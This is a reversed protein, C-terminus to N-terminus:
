AATPAPRRFEDTSVYTSAFADVGTQGCIQACKMLRGPGPGWARAFHPLHREIIVALPTHRLNLRDEGIRAVLDHYSQHTAAPRGNGRSDPLGPKEHLLAGLWCCPFVHGTAAVYVSGQPIVKCQIACTALADPGPKQALAPAPFRDSPHLRDIEQGADDLVRHDPGNFRTTSKLVFRDFGMARAMARAAEVEHQNHAFVLMDWTAQGGAAIFTRANGLITDFRTHRRYRQHSDATAGDLAFHASAGLSGLDSWFSAPRASGNTILNLHLRRNMRRAHELMPLCDQAIIPDGFNGCFTLTSLQALFAPSFWDVFDALTIEDLPLNARTRGGAINRGCMPCAAQCKASPELHLNRVEAYSYLRQFM